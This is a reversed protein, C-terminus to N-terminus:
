TERTWTGEHAVIFWGDVGDGVLTISDGERDGSGALIADKDDASTFGNGMIKDSANPSISLGTGTSLGAATLVFRYWLGVVTAPLTMVKDAATVMILSGSDAATVPYNASKSLVPCAVGSVAKNSDLVVAKSASAAGATVGAVTNLEAATATVATGAGSGIKLGSAAIVLTDVNKNAGLVLASSAAATGATVSALVNIEDSTATVGSIGNPNTISVGDIELGRVVLNRFYSKTRSM